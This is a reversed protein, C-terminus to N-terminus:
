STSSLRIRRLALEEKLLRVHADAVRIATARDGATALARLYRLVLPSSLPDHEVARAWWQAAREAQGESEAGTALDRLAEGYDRALRAREVDLM